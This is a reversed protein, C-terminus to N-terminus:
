VASWYPAARAASFLPCWDQQVAPQLLILEGKLIRPPPASPFAERPVLPPLLGSARLLGAEGEAVFGILSATGPVNSSPHCWQEICVAKELVQARGM